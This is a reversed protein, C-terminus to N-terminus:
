YVEQHYCKECYVIGKYDPSYSSFIEQQCKQCHRKWLSRSIRMDMRDSHRIDPHKRPIPIKYKRYFNLEQSTIIFLKKTKECNIAWNLVEDTIETISEPLREAPIVKEVEPSPKEYDSWNFGQNLTEKQSLPFYEQATTENYGFPSLSPAFFQGWEETKQMHEIIRGVLKEYEVKSYPKNLICYKNKKLGVCGFSNASNAYCAYCYWLSNSDIATACFHIDNSNQFTASYSCFESQGFGYCDICHHSLEGMACYILEEAEYVDFCEHCNKCDGLNSGTCNECNIAIINKSPQTLFFKSSEQKYKQVNPWQDLRTNKIFEFYEEKSYQKNFVCYSKHIL